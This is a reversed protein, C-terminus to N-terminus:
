FYHKGQLIKLYPIFMLINKLLGYKSFMMQFWFIIFLLATLLLNTRLYIIFHPKTDLNLSLKKITFRAVKLSFKFCFNIPDDQNLLYM